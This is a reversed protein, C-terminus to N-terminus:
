ELLYKFVIKQNVAILYTKTNDTNELIFPISGDIPFDPILEIDNNFLYIKGSNTVLGLKYKNNEEFYVPSVNVEGDLTYEKLLTKNFDYVWLKNGDIFIYEKISNNNIDEFIFFHNESFDAIHTEETKGNFDISIIKGSKNTSVFKGKKDSSILPYIRNNSKEITKDPKIRIDGKRDLIYIKGHIDTAIIFDKGLLRIFQVPANIINQAKYMKWGSVKDGNKDLNLIENKDNAYFIRYNKNNDYDFVSIGNTAKNKLKVPFHAVNKGNRDILYINNATNYLYQLKGNNYFDIQIIDSLIKEGADTRWLIIGTKDILYINNHEDVAIVENTNDNHNILKYVKDIAKYELETEWLSTSEEEIIDSSYNICINNYFLGNSESIQIAFSQFRSINEKYTTIDQSFDKHVYTKLLESSNPTNFYLFINAKNSLYNSFSNYATSNNLNRNFVVADVIHILSARTAGLIMYNDIICHTNLASINFSTGIITNFIEPQDFSGFKYDRYSTTDPITTLRSFSKQTLVKSIDNLKEKDKFRIILYNNSLFQAQEDYVTAYGIESEIEDAIDTEWDLEYTNKFAEADAIFTKYKPENEKQKINKNYYLKFNDFGLFIFSSTNHPLLKTLEIKPAQQNEFLSLVGKKDPLSNTFGNLVLADTKINLDLGSWSGFSPLFNLSEKVDESVLNLLIRHCQKYNIFINADVKKGIVESIQNFTADTLLSNEANLQLIADELLTQEYSCLLVGKCVSFFISKPSNNLKIELLENNKFEIRNFAVSSAYINNYIDEIYSVKKRNSFEILFLFNCINKSAPHLSVYLPADEFVSLADNNLKIISDAYVIQEHLKKFPEILQLEKWFVTETSIKQWLSLPNNAEFILAATTPIASIVPSKPAKLRQYYSVAFYLLLIVVGLLILSGSILVIKKNNKFM